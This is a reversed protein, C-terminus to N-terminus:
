FNPNVVEGGARTYLAKLIGLDVTDSITHVSGDGFLFQSIGDVFLDASPKDMDLEYDQPATWPVARDSTTELLMITNSTGDTIDQFGTPEKLRLLTVDSVPAQYVTYGPKTKRSPHKFVDPMEELLALNHESDWPEDLNFKQYLEAEEIFPLIAVRWSIMPEGDDDLGATAPFSRYASAFNHLALGLQKLNNATQARGAAMRASSIAPLLMGTLTGVISANQFDEVEYVLRNGTRNPKLALQLENAVRDFYQHMAQGTLSDNPVNRKMELLTQEQAFQLLNQVSGEIDSAGGEDIASVLLQIREQDSLQLRLAIFSASDVVIQVDEALQPPLPAAEAFGQLMPRLADVSVIALADQQSRIAGLITAVQGNPDGRLAMQKAFIKTGFIATNADVAHIVLEERGKLQLYKFGDDDHLGEGDLMDANVAQMDMAVSSQILAGFQPGAPGPLGILVDVRNLKLPDIGVTELGSATIVELPAMRMRESKALQEPWLSVAAATQPPTYKLLKPGADQAVVAQVWITLWASALAFLRFRLALRLGFHRM